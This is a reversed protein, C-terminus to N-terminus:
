RAEIVVRRNRPERVQDRTPVALNRKGEGVITMWKAPVGREILMQRVRRARRLSLGDNYRDSGLTDTHGSLVIEAAGRQKIDAYIQDITARSEPVIATSGNRFYLTFSRPAQPQAALAQGFITSVETPAVEVPKVDTSGAASGAAAYAQNLVTTNNGAGHVAVAGVHGNPEPLVVVLNDKALPPPPPPPEFFHYTIGALINHSANDVEFKGASAAYSLKPHMTAFYRYELNVSWHENLELSVGLIPQYAFVKDSGSVIALNPSLNTTAVGKLQFYDFGVGLGVYPQVPWNTPIDFYGNAM